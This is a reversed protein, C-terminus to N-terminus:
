NGYNLKEEPTALRDRCTEGPNIVYTAQFRDEAVYFTKGDDPTILAPYNNEIDWWLIIKYRDRDLHPYEKFYQEVKDMGYDALTVFDVDRNQKFQITHGAEQAEILNDQWIQKNVTNNLTESIKDYKEPGWGLLIHALKSKKIKAIEEQHSFIVYDKAIALDGELELRELKGIVVRLKEIREKVDKM